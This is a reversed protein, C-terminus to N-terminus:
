TVSLLFIIVCVSNYIYIIMQVYSYFMAWMYKESCRSWM